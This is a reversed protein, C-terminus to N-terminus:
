KIINIIPVIANVNKAFQENISPAKSNAEDNPVTPNDIPIVLVSLVDKGNNISIIPIIRPLNSINTNNWANKFFYSLYHYCKAIPQFTVLPTPLVM